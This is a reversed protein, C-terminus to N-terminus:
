LTRWVATEISAPDFYGKDIATKIMALYQGNQQLKDLDVELAALDNVRSTWIMDQHGGVRSAVTVENGLIQSALKAIEASWAAVDPPFGAVRARTSYLIM